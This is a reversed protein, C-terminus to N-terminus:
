LTVLALETIYKCFNTVIRNNPKDKDDFVREMIAHHGEYYLQNTKEKKLDKSSKHADILAKVLEVSSETENMRIDM